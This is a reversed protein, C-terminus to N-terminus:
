DQEIVFDSLDIEAWKALTIITPLSCTEYRLVKYILGDTYGTEEALETPQMNHNVMEDFVANVFAIFDFTQYASHAQIKM